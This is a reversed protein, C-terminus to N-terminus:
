KATEVWVDHISFTRATTTTTQGVCNFRLDTTTAPINSSLTQLTGDFTVDVNGSAAWAIEITHWNANKAIPGTIATTTFAGTEDNHYIEFNTAAGIFGVLVGATGSAMPTDSIALAGACFGVYMRSSTTSDIKVRATMKAAFLRRCIPGGTPAVLGVNLNGTATSVFNAIVGETTDFTVTNTGAGTGVHSGLIGTVSGITTATTGGAAQFTGWRMVRPNIAHNSLVNGTGRADITKNTLTDTTAKGVLTDTSTPLTLTGTNLISSITPTTLTKNTLTDTTARGVLTDTSTPLTVTGTNLISSITPTTFVASTVTRSNFNMTNDANFTIINNGGMVINIPRLTQGAGQIRSRIAFGATGNTMIEFIESNTLDSHNFLPIWARTVTDAVGTINPVVSLSTRSDAIHNKLIMDINPRIAASNTDFTLDGTMHAANFLPNTLIPTTLTKNTLTQTTGEGVFKATADPFTFTRLATVGTTDFQVEASSPGRLRMLGTDYFSAVNLFAGDHQVWLHMYTDEVNATNTALYSTIAGLRRKTSSANQHYFSIDATTGVTSSARYLDLTESAASVEIIQKSTFTNTINELAVNSSLASDPINSVTNSAGSITKNTLTQTDTTGVAETAAAVLGLAKKLASKLGALDPM